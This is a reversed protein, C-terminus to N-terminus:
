ILDLWYIKTGWFNKYKIKSYCNLCIATGGDFFVVGEFVSITINEGVGVDYLVVAENECYYEDPFPLDYNYKRPVKKLIECRM